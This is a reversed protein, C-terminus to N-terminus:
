HTVKQCKEDTTEAVVKVRESEKYVKDLLIAFPDYFEKILPVWKVEGNAVSDLDDELKATFSLDLLQFNM